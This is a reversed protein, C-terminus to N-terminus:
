SPPAAARHGRGRAPNIACHCRVRVGEAPRSHMAPGQAAEGRTGTDPQSVHEMAGDRPTAILHIGNTQCANITNHFRSGPCSQEQEVKQLLAIPSVLHPKSDNSSAQDETPNFNNLLLQFLNMCLFPEETQTNAEQVWAVWILHPQCWVM